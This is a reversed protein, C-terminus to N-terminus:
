NLGAAARAKERVYSAFDLGKKFRAEAASIGTEDGNAVMLAETLIKYLSSVHAQYASEIAKETKDM